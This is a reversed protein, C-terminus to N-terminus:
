RQDASGTVGDDWVVELVADLPRPVAELPLADVLATAYRIKRGSFTGKRGSFTGLFRRLQEARPRDRWQPQRLFTRFANLEGAAEIVSGVTEAGLARILEDELDLM